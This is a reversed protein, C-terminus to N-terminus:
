YGFSAGYGSPSMRIKKWKDIYDNVNHEVMYKYKSHMYMHHTPCLPILNEPRNDHHNENLHHVAVIKDEACVVCKKEHYEFCVSQYREGSWNGNNEGSRFHKNACSRSCTGKSTSYNKIPQGCVLCPTLVTPNLYCRSEHLKINGISYNKNCYQCSKKQENVKAWGGKTGANHWHAIFAKLSKYTRGNKTSTYTGDTNKYENYNM